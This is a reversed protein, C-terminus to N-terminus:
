LLFFLVWVVLATEAILIAPFGFKFYWHKTKHSTLHMALYGGIAGGLFSMGLLTKERM